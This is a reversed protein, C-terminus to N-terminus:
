FRKEKIRAKKGTLGRLYFLRKRRVKGKKNVEINEIFPSSLPFIREVGIGGSMKRVTFTKTNERGKVQLVVGRFNQVREKNGERIMYSVTITDGASFKPHEKEVKFENEVFKILDM